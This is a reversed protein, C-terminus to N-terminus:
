PKEKPKQVRELGKRALEVYPKEGLKEFIQLAQQYYKEAAKLDGQQEALRGLQGLTKAIGSQDGLKRNIDLSDNYLKVAEPYNDKHQEIMALQYLTKAIGSQDGLKRNIDLSDNYLKVAEPYNDKHQEIMALQHLTKAIGSQDGLKRNIDLSDNYLKVAEPYNGIGQEIMALQHLTKAIGSQDGLKRNIELSQDCLRKAEDYNGTLYEIYALQHLTAAMGSQNGLKRKIDLSDNYLKVAEPYNGKHQEIMALCHLALAERNDDHKNKSYALLEEYIGKAEDIRGWTELVTAWDGKAQMVADQDGLDRGDKVARRYCEDAVGLEGVAAASHALSVNLLLSAKHLGAHHSHYASGLGVAFPIGGEKKESEMFLKVYFHAAKEHLKIRDNERLSDEICAKVLEDRFWPKERNGDLIWRQALLESYAGVAVSEVGTLEEYSKPDIEIPPPYQLVSLQHLFGLVALDRSQEARLIDAIRLKVERYVGERVKDAEGVRVDVGKLEEPDLNKSDRIWRELLIPFGGSYERIRVLQPGLLDMRREAKIWDGIEETKLGQLEKEQFGEIWTGDTFFKELGKMTEPQHDFAALVYVQEPMIRVLDLLIRWAKEDVREFQDFALVLKIDPNSRHIADLVTNVVYIFSRPESSLKSRANDIDSKMDKYKAYVRQLTSVTAKGVVKSAIDILLASVMTNAEEGLAKGLRELRDKMKGTTSELSAFSNLAATLADVFPDTALMSLLAQVEGCAIRHEPRTRARNVLQKLLLSKGIGHEGRLILAGRKSQLLREFLDIEETRGHLIQSPESQQTL